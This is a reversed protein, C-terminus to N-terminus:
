KNIIRGNQVKSSKIDYFRGIWCDRCSAQGKGEGDIGDEVFYHECTGDYIVKPKHLTVGEEQEVEAKLEDFEKSLESESEQSKQPQKEQTM